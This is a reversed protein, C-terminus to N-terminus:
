AEDCARLLGHNLMEKLFPEAVSASAVTCDDHCNDCAILLLDDGAALQTHIIAGERGLIRHSNLRKKLEKVTAANIPV